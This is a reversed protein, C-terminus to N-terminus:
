RVSYLDSIWELQFGERTLDSLIPKSALKNEAIIENIRDGEQTPKQMKM